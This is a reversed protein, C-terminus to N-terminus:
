VFIANWQRTKAAEKCSECKEIEKREWLLDIIKWEKQQSSYHM